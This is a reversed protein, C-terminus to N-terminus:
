RTRAHCASFYPPALDAFLDRPLVDATVSADAVSINDRDLQPANGTLQVIGDACETSWDAGYPWWASLAKGRSSYWNIRNNTIVHGRCPSGGGWNGVVIGASTVIDANDHFLINDSITINEGGAIGIGAQGAYVLINDKVVINGGGYDGTMIGSGSDSAGRGRIYNGIIHLPSEPTGGSKFISIHDETHCGFGNDITCDGRNYMIESGPGRVKNFEVFNRGYPLTRQGINMYENYRIKINGGDTHWIKMASGGGEFRNGEITINHSEFAFIAIKCDDFLSGRITINQAGKIDICRGDPNTFRKGEIITGSDAETLTLPQSPVLEKATCQQTATARSEAYVPTARSVAISESKPSTQTAFGSLFWRFRGNQPDSCRMPASCGCRFGAGDKVCAYFALYNTKADSIFYPVDVTARGIIWPGNKRAGDLTVRARFTNGDRTYYAERYIWLTDSGDGVTIAYRGQDCTTRVLAASDNFINYPEAFNTALAGGRWPVDCPAAYADIFVIFPFIFLPLYKRM